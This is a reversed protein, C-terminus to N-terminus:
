NELEYRQLQNMAWIGCVPGIALLIFAWKWSLIQELLPIAYISIVTLFFGVAMQLTLATGVYDPQAYDTVLASFQASDAVVSIGWILAIPITLWIAKGFTFGICLASLTSIIMAYKALLAKGIKDALFGGIVAGIAGSIGITLFAFLVSLRAVDTGELSIRFSAALFLPIWTWMAYLEWMHGFYGYNALMIPKNHSIKKLTDLNFSVANKQKLASPADGLIWYMIIAAVLALASSLLIILKWSVNSTVLILLHPSASGVTLAGILIGVSLGRQTQFWMSILKVATPYVGAMAVGTLFRFLLAITLTPSFILLANVLAGLLSAGAFLKRPNFKDALGLVASVIAGIIFGIQVATTLWAGQVSTMAWELKLQPLVASASFWISLAFLEALAIWGLARWRYSFTDQKQNTNTSTFIFVGM